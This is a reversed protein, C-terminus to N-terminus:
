LATSDAVDLRERLLQRTAASVVCAVLRLTATGLRPRNSCETLRVMFRALVLLAVAAMVSQLVASSHCTRPHLREVGTQYGPFDNARSDFTLAYTSGAAATLCVSLLFCMLRRRRAHARKRVARWLESWASCADRRMAFDRPPSLGSQGTLNFMKLSYLIDLCRFHGGRFYTPGALVGFSLIMECAWFIADSVDCLPEVRCIFSYKPMQM